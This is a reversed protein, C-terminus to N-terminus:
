AKKLKAVANKIREVAELLDEASAAYSMRLCDTDGFSAGGVTSVQAEGLLFMAFDDSDNITYENYSCGFYASIDPFFYFAGEPMPVKFGPIERLGKGILERRNEFAERMAYTPALSATLATVAAKQAFSNAGSTVQGQIKECAKAIWLPAGIYGLRWGTMAFGKAFGNVTITRDRVQPFAGISLHKGVYSIYEYIEDAVIYIGEHKAVINAFAELEHHNFVAGTPNCPSSFWIMRTKPTIAAELQQPTVKFDQEVSARLIVPTADAMKIIESYSVWYPALVIVEDDPNLMAMAVNNLSQKAGTSVVVNESTWTLGNERQLKEAIAKRLEPLGAVPTYKTYGEDLAVKAAEKIHDPTDFDPEGLSLNIVRHGQAALERALRAMRLTASEELRQIRESLHM